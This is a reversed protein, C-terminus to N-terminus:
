YLDLLQKRYAAPTTGTEAKFVKNFHSQSCFGTELAIELMSKEGASILRRTQEIRLDTVYAYPTRGTSKKFLTHLYNPSLGVAAAIRQLSCDSECYHESIYECADQIARNAPVAESSKESSKCLRMCRYLIELFLANIRVTNLDDAASSICYASLRSFLSLLSDITETDEIYTCDPLAALLEETERNREDGPTVRIFSCRVPFDSHRIQGPKACLLMGRRVPHRAGDVHSAGGDTHFLEIEYCLVERNQSRAQNRRLISSDFVGSQIDKGKQLM